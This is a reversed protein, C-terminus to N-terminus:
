ALKEVLLHDIFHQLLRGSEASEPSFSVGYHFRGASISRDLDSSNCITAIVSIASTVDPLLIPITMTVQGGVEDLMGTLEIRAGHQSIDRMIALTRSGNARVLEVPLRTDLRQSKRIQRFKVDDPIVFHAYPYPRSHARLSRATFAYAYMGHLVRFKFSSGPMVWISKEGVTPLTTLFSLPSNAGIFSVSFPSADVGALPQVLLTEGGQSAHRQFGYKGPGAVLDRGQGNGYFVKQFAWGTVAVM